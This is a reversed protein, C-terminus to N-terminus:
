FRGHKMRDLETDVLEFPLRFFNFREYLPSLLAHMVEALNDQVQQPTATATLVLADTHSVDENFVARSGNISTLSRELLGTFRCEIAIAEVDEFTAALRNAFLLGEGIRWVPLTVDIVTGPEVRGILGDESYGRVTYLKGDLSARWYDCHAPESQMWDDRIPRGVWAEIFNEHPYPSWGDTAMSLFPTWGTLRIQRATALRDQLEALGGAPQAGVLSFGMEYFGFPFRAPANDPMDVALEQWRRRAMECFEHLQEAENPVIAVADVRGSVISRIADLMDDRGAQVCRRLLTRWEEGTQPEESRPGPKRIYCRNQAIVGQCDRKSMIPETMNGPVVVVPHVVGSEPHPVNYVECHFEPTVYRHVAANVTDQSIEPVEQPRASSVLMAGRDELGLVVYGGGHNAMAIVAKSLTAKHENTTLDLWGKYEADLAERPETILPQLEEISPM